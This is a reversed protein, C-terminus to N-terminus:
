LKTRGPNYNLPTRRTIKIIVAVKQITRPAKERPSEKLGM